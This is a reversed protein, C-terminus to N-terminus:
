FVLLFLFTAKDSQLKKGVQNKVRRRWKDFYHIKMTPFRSFIFFERWLEGIKDGLPLCTLINTDKMETNRPMEKNVCTFIYSLTKFVTM